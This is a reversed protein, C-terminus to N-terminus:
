PLATEASGSVGGSGEVVFELGLGATSNWGVDIVFMFGITVPTDTGPGDSFSWDSPSLMALSGGIPTEFTAVISGNTGLVTIWGGSPHVGEFPVSYSLGGPGVVKAFLHGLTWAPESEEVQVAYAFDWPADCGFRPPPWEVCSTPGTAEGVAFPGDCLRSGPCAGPDLPSSGPPTVWLVVAVVVIAGAAVGSVVWRDSGPENM